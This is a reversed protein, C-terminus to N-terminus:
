LSALTTQSNNEVLFDLQDFVCMHSRSRKSRADVPDIWAMCDDILSSKV